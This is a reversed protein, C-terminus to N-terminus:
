NYLLLKGDDDCIFIPVSLAPISVQDGQGTVAITFVEKDSEVVDDDNISLVVCQIPQGAATFTVMGPSPLPNYDQDPSAAAVGLGALM